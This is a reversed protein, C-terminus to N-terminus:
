TARGLMVIPTGGWTLEAITLFGSRAYFSRNRSDRSTVLHVGPLGGARADSVFAEILRSGIGKSRAVPALNIHLHAPYDPTRDALARYFGIDDFRPDRAPDAHSGIIYGIIMGDAGIAVHALEPWHELFRGLWRERFAARTAEDPFTKTLSAEFFIPDLECVRQRWRDLETLRHIAASPL